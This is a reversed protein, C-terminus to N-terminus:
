AFDTPPSIKDTKNMVVDDPGLATAPVYYTNLLYEGFLLM